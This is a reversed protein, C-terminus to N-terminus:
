NETLLADRLRILPGSDLVPIGNEPDYFVGTNGSIFSGSVRREAKAFGEVIPPIVEDPGAQSVVRGQQFNSPKCEDSFVCSLPSLRPLLTMVDQASPELDVDMWICAVEREDYRLLSESFYGKHFRVASLKGFEDVNRSVEELSGRFDGANYYTSDSEPLGAFSDFADLKLGLRFCAESLCATSFGKFCGFECLNGSVGYSKLVALHHSIVFLEIPSTGVGCRDKDDPSASPDGRPFNHANFELRTWIERLYSFYRFVGATHRSARRFVFILDEVAEDMKDRTWSPSDYTADGRLDRLVATVERPFPTYAGPTENHAAKAAPATARRQISLTPIEAPLSRILEGEKSRFEVHVQARGGRSRSFDEDKFDYSYGSYLSEPQDPYAEAVDVRLEGPTAKGVSHGDVFVDISELGASFFVWGSVRDRNAVDVFAQRIERLGKRTTALDETGDEDDVSM